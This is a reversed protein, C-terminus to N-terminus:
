IFANAKKANMLPPEAHISACRRSTTSLVCAVHLTPTLQLAFVVAHKCLVIAWTNLSRARGAHLSMRPGDTTSTSSKKEFVGARCWRTMPMQM